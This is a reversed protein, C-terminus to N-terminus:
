AAFLLPASWVARTRLSIQAKATRMHCFLTEWSTAWIFTWKLWKWTVNSNLGMIIYLHCEAKIEPIEWILPLCLKWKWKIYKHGWSRLLQRPINTEPQGHTRADTRAHTREICANWIKHVTCALTKFNWIHIGWPFIASVRKKKQKKKRSSNDGMWSNHGKSFFWFSIQHM